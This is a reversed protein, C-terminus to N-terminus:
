GGQPRHRRETQGQRVDRSGCRRAAKATEFTDAVALAIYQGYYRVVDDEFPPRREDCSAKSGPSWSRASSRESTRAIFFRGCAPCKRPPPRTSRSWTPRQRDDGRGTRCVADRSLSLRLRVAGNRESQLPGDVRPTGRGVPSAIPAEQTTPMNVGETSDAQRPRNAPRARPLAQGARDQIANESQPKADRMAAEAAKRFNAANAPQGVLAAEAEPSRWPKTGVGGLAIRARTM